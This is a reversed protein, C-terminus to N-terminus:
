PKQSLPKIRSAYTSWRQATKYAEVSEAPVYIPCDNTDTFVNAGLTPPNVANVTMGTLASCSRFAQDGISTTGSPITMSTLGSCGYFAGTGINTVSDPIIISTLGSCSHFTYVNLYSLSNSLTVSSLSKCGNFLNSGITTVSDPITMSTLANCRYFVYSGITTVTDPIYVSVLKSTAGNATEFALNDIVTICDGVVASTMDEFVHGSPKTTATTLISDADCDVSYTSSDYYTAQFKSGVPPASWVLNGSCGYVYKISHNNYNIQKIDNHNNYSIM